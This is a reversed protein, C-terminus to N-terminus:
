PVIRPRPVPPRSRWQSLGTELHDVRRGDDSEISIWGSPVIMVPRERELLCMAQVTPADSAVALNQHAQRSAGVLPAEARDTPHAHGHHHHDFSGSRAESLFEIFTHPHSTEAGARYTIPPSVLSLALLLGVLRHVMDHAREGRGRFPRGTMM